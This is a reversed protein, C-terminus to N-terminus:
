GDEVARGVGLTKAQGAGREGILDKNHRGLSLNRLAIVMARVVKDMESQLLEVLVPLRREKHVM